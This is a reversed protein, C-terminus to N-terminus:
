GLCLEDQSHLFERLFRLERLNGVKPIGTQVTGDGIILVKPQVVGSNFAMKVKVESASVAPM